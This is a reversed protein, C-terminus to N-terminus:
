EPPLSPVGTQEYRYIFVGAARYVNEAVGGEGDHQCGADSDGVGSEAAADACVNENAVAAVLAPWAACRLGAARARVAASPEAPVGIACWPAKAETDEAM